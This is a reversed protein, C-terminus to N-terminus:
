PAWYLCVPTHRQALLASIPYVADGAKAADYVALKEEGFCLILIEDSRLIAGLTASVRPHPSASTRVPIYFRDNDPRLGDALNDADPFLSAFHGDAGMGVTACAFGSVPMESQLRDCAEDVSMDDQYISVFGASAAEDILLTKRVLRENSDEHDRSVWREDSLAVRVQQWPLAYGSLLGFYEGPSTGGSVMLMAGDDRAVKANILGATRAAAAVAAAERTAFKKESAM